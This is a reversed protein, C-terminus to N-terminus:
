LKLYEELKVPPFLNVQPQEEPEPLYGVELGPHCLKMIDAIYSLKFDSIFVETRPNGYDQFVYSAGHNKIYALSDDTIIRYDEHTIGSRKPFVLGSNGALIDLISDYLNSLDLTTGDGKGKSEKHELYLNTKYFFLMTCVYQDRLPFVLREPNSRKWKILRQVMIGAWERYSETYYSIPFKLAVFEGTKKDKRTFAEKRANKKVPAEGPIVIKFNVL